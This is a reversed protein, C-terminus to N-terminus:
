GKTIPIDVTKGSVDKVFRELANDFAVLGKHITPYSKKLVLKTGRWVYLTLKVLRDGIYYGLLVLKFAGEEIQKIIKEQRKAM